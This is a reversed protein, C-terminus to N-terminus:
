VVNARLLRELKDLDELLEQWTKRWRDDLPESPQGLEEAAASLRSRLTEIEQKRDISHTGQEITTPASGEYRSHQKGVVYTLTLILRRLRFRAVYTSNLDDIAKRVGAIQGLCTDIDVM